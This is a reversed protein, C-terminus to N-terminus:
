SVAQNFKKISETLMKQNFPKSIFDNFGVNLAKDRVEHLANASLAIIPTKLNLEERIKKTAEIGGMVPMELDMLIVDYEEGNLLADKCMHYAIRGNEAVDIHYGFPKIMRIIISRNVENDEAILIKKKPAAEVNNNLDKIINNDGGILKPKRSESPISRFKQDSFSKLLLQRRKNHSNSPALHPYNIPSIEEKTAARSLKPTSSSSSQKNNNNKSINNIKMDPVKYPISFCFTAGRNYGKSYFSINGDMEEVFYKAITLGLGISETNKKSSFNCRFFPHFINEKQVETIGIGSDSVLFYLNGLVTNEDRKRFLSISSRRKRSSSNNIVEGSKAHKGKQKDPPSTYHEPNEKFKNFIEDDTSIILTIKGGPHSFKISNSLLNVLVQKIRSEDGIFFQPLPKDLVKIIELNKLILQPYNIEISDNILSYLNILSNKISVDGYEIKSLDLIDSITTLLNECCSQIIKVTSYQSHTLGESQLLDLNGVIGFLPTRLQHSMKALFDTKANTSKLLLNVM